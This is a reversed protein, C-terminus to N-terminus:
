HPPGPPVVRHLEQRNLAEAVRDGRAGRWWHHRRTHRRHWAYRHRMPRDHRVATATVPAAASPAATAAAASAAAKAAAPDAPPIIPGAGPVPAAAPARASAPAAAALLVAFAVGSLLHKM